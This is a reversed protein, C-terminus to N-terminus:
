NSVVIVSINDKSKKSIAKEVLQESLTKVNDYKKSVEAELETINIYNWLGDTALILIDGKNFETEYIDPNPSIADEFFLDGLSRSVAIIKFGKIKGQSVQRSKELFWRSSRYQKLENPNSLHHDITLKKVSSNSKKIYVSSDGVNAIYARNNKILAVSATTGSQIQKQHVDKDIAIFALKLAGLPNNNFNTMKIYKYLNDAAYEASEHGGHGDFVGVISINEKGINKEIFYRDEQYPRSGQISAIGFIM